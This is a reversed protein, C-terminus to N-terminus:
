MWRVFRCSQGRKLNQVVQFFQPDMSQEGANQPIGAVKLYGEEALVKFNSFFSEERIKVTVAVKQYVAPPYFISLFRKVVCDYVNRAAQSVSSLASLGQGTPIIAYHDTIQKDNVYRTKVLNKYTGMAAIEKLYVAVSGYKSLGNLNKSIEKAVATSLVRADTRPYTVLKKEYLEQM